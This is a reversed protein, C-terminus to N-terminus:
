QVYYDLTLTALLPEKCYDCENSINKFGRSFFGVTEELVEGKSKETINVAAELM